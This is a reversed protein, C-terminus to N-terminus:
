VMCGSCVKSTHQGGALDQQLRELLPPAMVAMAKPPDAWVLAQGLSSAERAVSPLCTGSVFRLVRRTAMDRLAPPLRAFLLGLLPRHM